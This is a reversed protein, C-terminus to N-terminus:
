QGEDESGNGEYAELARLVTNGEDEAGSKKEGACDEGRRAQEEKLELLIRLLQAPGGNGPPDTAENQRKKKHDRQEDFVEQWTRTMREAFDRTGQEGYHDGGIEDGCRQVVNRGFHGLMRTRQERARLM